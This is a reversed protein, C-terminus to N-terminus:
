IYIQHKVFETFFTTQNLYKGKGYIFYPRFIIFTVLVFCVTVIPSSYDDDCKLKKLNERCVLIERFSWTIGHKLWLFVPNRKQNM